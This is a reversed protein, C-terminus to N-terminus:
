FHSRMTLQKTDACRRQVRRGIARYGVPESELEMADVDELRLGIDIVPLENTFTYRRSDTSLTGAISFGSVDFDHLVFIQKLGRSCLEDLLMRAATVSMGKTSMIALDFREVLRASEFLPGFGEKEIFLVSHFRNEPGNTRFL